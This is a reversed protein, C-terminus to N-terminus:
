REPNTWIPHNLPPPGVSSSVAPERIRRSSGVGCIHSRGCTDVSSEALSLNSTLYGIQVIIGFIGLGIMIWGAVGYLLVSVANALRQSESPKASM